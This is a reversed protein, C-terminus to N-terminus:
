PLVVFPGSSSLVGGPMTVQVRGTTAGTPVIASIETPSIVSFAAATGGFTVTDLERALKEVRRQNQSAAHKRFRQERRSPLRLLLGGFWRRATFARIL